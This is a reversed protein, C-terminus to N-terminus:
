DGARHLCIQPRAYFRVRKLSDPRAGSPVMFTYPLRYPGTCSLPRFPRRVSGLRVQVRNGTMVRLRPAAQRVLRTSNCHGDQVATATRYWHDGRKSQERTREREFELVGRLTAVEGQAAGRQQNLDLGQGEASFLRTLIDTIEALDDYTLAAITMLADM